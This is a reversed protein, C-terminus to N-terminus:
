PNEDEAYFWQIHRCNTCIYCDGRPNAWDLDLLTMVRTNLQAERHWFTDGGCVPCKLWIGARQVQSSEKEM